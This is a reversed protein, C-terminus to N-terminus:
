LCIRRVVTPGTRIIGSPCTMSRGRCKIQVKLNGALDIEPLSCGSLDPNAFVSDTTACDGGSAPVANIMATLVQVSVKIDKNIRDDPLQRIVRM